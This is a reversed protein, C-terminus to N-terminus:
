ERDEVTVGTMAADTDCFWREHPGIRHAVVASRGAIQEVSLVRARAAALEIALPIGDLRQCIQGVAAANAASLEFAPLVARVREVFLRVAEFRALQDHPPLESSLPLALPQVRFVMEGGIGLPERSTALIQLGPCAHLLTEALQACDDILHECNDLILLLRRERLHASLTATLAREPQERLGLASAIAQAILAPAALLALEVLWVGDPFAALATSAAHLALRTKGTGGPGTLTLLRAGALLDAIAALDQERGVFSTLQVPLNHPPIDHTEPAHQAPLGPRAGNGARDEVPAAPPLQDAPLEGRASLLFLGREDAAIALQEALLGAIQRSPRREDAEIKQITVEACGVRRALDGQTLDLARRRRRVWYGFSIPEEM